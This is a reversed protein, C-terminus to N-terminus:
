QGRSPLSVVGAGPTTKQGKPTEAWIELEVINDGGQQSKKTIRGHCIIDEEVM